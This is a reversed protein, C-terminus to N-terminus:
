GVFEFSGTDGRAGQPVRTNKLDKAALSGAYDHDIARSGAKLSFNGASANQFQPNARVVNNLSPSGGIQLVPDGRSNWVLSNSLAFPRDAYIAKGEAWIIGGTMTLVSPSCSLECVVGQSRAGTQYTTNHNLITGNVPGYVSGGGRTVIFRTDPRASVYLNYAFRNNSAKTSRGGLESFVRDGYAKNHHIWNNSGEYIEISNSMLWTKPRTCVAANNRLTNYAVENGDSNIIVGWAGLDDGPKSGDFTELVNNGVLQNGVIHNRWSGRGLHVGGTAASAISRRLVNDHAGEVFTIAYYEGIPQGCSTKKVPDFTLRLDQLVLHSGTVKVDSPGGNKITPLAGSGYAGITIPASATGNWWANLQTGNWRCGRALWVNDGPRLQAHNLRGISRWAADKSTGAHGDNGSWCNVYLSRTAANVAPVPAVGVAAAFLCATAFARTSISKKVALTGKSCRAVPPLPDSHVHQM